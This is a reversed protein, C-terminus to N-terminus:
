LVFKKILVVGGAITILIIFGLTFYTQIKGTSISLMVPADDIDDEGDKKNDPTSDKDPADFENDDESIEAINTMVGMNDESNIWTLIVEVDAYEGPQLLTNELSRTSIVNNGEDTWEPNDEVVFKLGEPIYDTVEKAYGAITGENIVRISYKFKVTVQNLKKRHIEVKVVQEPDDYPQHGTQTVTETGNEIVIAETVWKRLALDFEVLKIYEKDQDDEGENWEGPISDEDDDSDESIQASNIIIKDSSNPETVKFAVKVDAYDLENNDFAQLLEEALYDTTIKVAKTVDDTENGDEDIMKWNMTQNLENEPLFELGDPIDDTIETAYGSLEGENYVRITYTVINGTVVQLPTKDHEYTIKGNEIKVEPIRSTVEKEEIATIFKRLALDFKKIILKEFDDDDEQGPIYAGTEDDKYEPLITDNPLQVNDEVSDRDLISVKNEDLYKTIDAINTIQEGTKATDKVKCMIPIEKYFLVYNDNIDKQAKVIKSNELYKTTVTRGDESVEWGYQENFEGDVFELYKPLHDKIEAAYGDIEGENYVRLMYVVIDNKKVVVPEKTHRYIATTILEGNENKTNLKSTDVIPARTYSGDDNKLYESNEIKTDDSVAIIFKRLALDFSQLIINDYDEDDEYKVWQTTNSDRDDIENGNKDCDETIAAENRIITGTIDDSVVKFKVSIEKYSLNEETKTGDNRGFATILNGGVTTENEKSLYDSSIQIVNEGEEDYVFKGWLYEQNFEIAEKEEATLTTDAQLEEGEKESWLFELGEPIDETIEEAYGDITGENYIRFTYTVIDGKKVTVPEKNLDYEATTIIEGDTDLTNLKSADIDEIREQVNQGNVATIRKILKLDFSEPLIVLKEFDDDDQQGKYYYSSDTLDTKNNNGTYDSMNDKNVSPKTAPESDRDAKEQESITIGDEADYEESIWAVNTLVKSTKTDATATVECEIEITESDLNGPTYASLQETNSSNRKLNLTNTTEDYSDLVFNGSVIKTYKLGTPLQDVVKTAYGAKEGENYITLKYTVKDGTVVTVPSKRHKYTATMGTGLTAEDISPARSNSANLEVGNIKTIYKRLALDFTKEEELVLSLEVPADKKTRTVEVLPQDSNEQGNVSSTWLKATTASYNININIKLNEVQSTSVSIYFDKGLLDKVTTGTTVQNKNEDLLKYNSIETGNNTVEFDITYPISKLQTMNIPGIICNEGSITNYLATTNVKVPVGGTTVNTYQSANEKAEKILYNYLFEGQYSRLQGQSIHPDVNDPNYNELSDYTAGDLTYNIWSNSGTKDYKGNEEGYNTFYWIVAQQIANIDNDTLANAMPDSLLVDMYSGTYGSQIGFQLINNTLEEKETATSVGPLYLRDMVALLADYCNITVGNETITKNVLEKLVKNQAEVQARETQMDYFVNYAARKIGSSDTQTFGIGAKICYINSDEFETSTASKYKVINWIKAANDDGPKNIAYGMNPTDHTMLEIIGMYVEQGSALTTAYVVNQALVFVSFIMITILSILTKKLNM